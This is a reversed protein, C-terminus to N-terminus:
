PLSEPSIRVCRRSILNGPYSISRPCAIQVAAAPAPRQSRPRLQWLPQSAQDPLPEHRGPNRSDVYEHHVIFGRREAYDRLERLQLEPSQEGTSVRAYIAVRM